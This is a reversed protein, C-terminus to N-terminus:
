AGAFRDRSRFVLEAPNGPLALRYGAEAIVRRLVERVALQDPAEGLATFQVKVELPKTSSTGGDVVVERALGLQNLAATIAGVLNDHVSSPAQRELEAPFVLDLVRGNPALRWDVVAVLQGSRFGFVDCGDALSTNGLLIEALHLSRGLDAPANLSGSKRAIVVASTTVVVGYDAYAPRLCEALVRRVVNPQRGRIIPNLIVRGDSLRGEILLFNEWCGLDALSPPVLLCEGSDQIFSANMAGRERAYTM